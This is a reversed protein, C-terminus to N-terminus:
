YNSGHSTVNCCFRSQDQACTRPILVVSCFVLADKIWTIQYNQKDANLTDMDIANRMWCEWNAVLTNSEHTWNVAYYGPNKNPPPVRGFGSPSADTTCVNSAIAPLQTQSRELLWCDHTSGCLSFFIPSIVNLPPKKYVNDAEFVNTHYVNFTPSIHKM